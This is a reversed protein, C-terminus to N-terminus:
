KIWNTFEIMVDEWHELQYNASGYENVEFFNHELGIYRKLTLNTKGNEIFFLPLLDCMDAIRDETGYAMYIPINLKLLDAYFPKSFSQLSKLNPNQKVSDVNNAFRYEEYLRNMASDAEEWTIRGLHANLRARRIAIDIIGFPSAAFLGLETVDKNQLAIQTAIKTGQSHGAVVLKGSSIWKQKKLFKLVKNARNVYNELYNAELYDARYSYKHATDLVYSSQFNLNKFGAILPTKPMSIVAVHYKKNLEELNFNSLTAPWIRNKGINLFLPTPLSGQCYLFLPKAETLNTDAIVFDITDNKLTIQFHSYSTGEVNTQGFVNLSLLFFGLLILKQTM